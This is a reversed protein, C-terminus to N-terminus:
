ICLSAVKSEIPQKYLVSIGFDVEIAARYHCKRHKLL